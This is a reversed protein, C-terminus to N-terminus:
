ELVIDDRTVAPRLSNPFNLLNGIFKCLGVLDGSAEM